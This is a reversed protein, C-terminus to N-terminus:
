LANTLLVYAIVIILAVFGILSVVSMKNYSLINEIRLRINAGGFASAFVNKSEAYKLLSLAYGKKQEEGCSSLVKEDCSLELDSLYCRLFIWVLPNFWHVATTAFAILRRLNDFSKIHEREHLLVFSLEEDKYASPLIIRPRFVGYVAPSQIKDSLYIRDKLHVSDKIERLTIVYIIGFALLLALAVVLWVVAAIDFVKELLNIKYTIPSYSDAAMVFNTYSLSADKGMEYVVVTKTTFHSLFSMLGYRGSIGVPIWMRLIPIMWLYTIVRRPIKKISRLLLIATGVVASAISMNFIWYFVEGM